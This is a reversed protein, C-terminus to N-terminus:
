EFDNLPKRFAYQNTLEKSWLYNRGQGLCQIQQCEWQLHKSSSLLDATTDSCREEDVDDWSRHCSAKNHHSSPTKKTPPYYTLRLGYLFLRVFLLVCYTCCVYLRLIPSYWYTKNLVMKWDTTTSLDSPFPLNPPEFVLPKSWTKCINRALIHLTGCAQPDIIKRHDKSTLQPLRTTVAKANRKWSDKPYKKKVPTTLREGFYDPNWDLKCLFSSDQLYM